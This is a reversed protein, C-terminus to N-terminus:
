SILPYLYESNGPALLLAPIEEGGRCEFSRPEATRFGAQSLIAEALGDSSELAGASVQGPPCDNESNGGGGVSDM